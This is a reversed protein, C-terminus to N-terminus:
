GYSMSAVGDGDFAATAMSHGGWRRWQVGYRNDVTWQQRLLRGDGHGNFVLQWRRGDGSDFSSARQQWCGGGSTDIAM